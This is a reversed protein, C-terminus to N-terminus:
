DSQETKKSNLLGAAILVPLLIMPQLLVALFSLGLALAVFFSVQLTDSCVVTDMSPHSSCAVACCCAATSATMEMTRYAEM